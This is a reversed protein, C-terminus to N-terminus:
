QGQLPLLKFSTTQQRNQQQQQRKIQHVSPSEALFKVDLSKCELVLSVCIAQMDM